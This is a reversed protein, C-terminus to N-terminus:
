RAALGDENYLFSIERCSVNVCEQIDVRMYIWMNGVGAYMNVVKNVMVVLCM